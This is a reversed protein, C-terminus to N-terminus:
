IIKKGEKFLKRHELNGLDMTFKDWGGNEDLIAMNWGGTVNENFQWLIHLGDENSFGENDAQLIGGIQNWVIQQLSSIIDWNDGMYASSLINIAYIVKVRKLYDTLWEVASDPKCDQIEELFEDIENQGLSNKEVINQDIIAVDEGKKNRISISKWNDMDGSDISITGILKNSNLIGKYNISKNKLGLVRIYYSM